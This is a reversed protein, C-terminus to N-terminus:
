VRPNEKEWKVTQSDAPLYLPHSPQGQKTIKFVHAGGVRRVNPSSNVVARVEQGRNLFEGHNGWCAVVKEVALQDVYEFIYDDNIQRNPNGLILEGTPNPAEKLNKPDTARYAFINLMYMRGFGWGKAFSILRRITPDNETEDATSPNLGIFTISPKCNDWQRWLLYRYKRDNSFIADSKL